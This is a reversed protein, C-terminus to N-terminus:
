KIIQYEEIPDRTKYDLETFPLHKYRKRIKEIIQEEQEDEGQEENKQNEEDSGKESM